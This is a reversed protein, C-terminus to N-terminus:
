KIIFINWDRFRGSMHGTIPRQALIEGGIAAFILRYNEPNNSYHNKIKGPNTKNIEDIQSNAINIAKLLNDKGICFGFWEETSWETNRSWSSGSSTRILNQSGYNANIWFWGTEYDFGWHEKLNGPNSDYYLGGYSLSMRSSTDAILFSSGGQNNSGGSHYSKPVAAFFTDCLLPNSGYIASWPRVDQSSAFDVQYNITYLPSPRPNIPPASDTNIFFSFKGQYAQVASAGYWDPSTSREYTSKVGSSVLLGTFDEIGIKPTKSFDGLAFAQVTLVNTKTPNIINSMPPSPDPSTFFYVPAFSEIWVNQCSGRLMPNIGGGINLAYVCVPQTGRKDTTFTFDFGHNNGTGPYARGVDPRYGDAWGLDHGEGVGAPGGVYAHIRVASTPADQDLSWGTIRITGTSSSATDLWGIPTQNAQAPTSHLAFTMAMVFAIGAFVLRQTVKAFIQHRM